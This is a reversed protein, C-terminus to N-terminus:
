RRQKFSNVFHFLASVEARFIVFLPKSVWGSHLWIVSLKASNMKFRFQASIRLSSYLHGFISDDANPPALFVEANQM